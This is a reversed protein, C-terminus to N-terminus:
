IKIGANLDNLDQIKYEYRITDLKGDRDFDKGVPGLIEVIELDLTEGPDLAFYKSNKRRAVKNEELRNKSM